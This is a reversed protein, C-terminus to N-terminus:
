KELESEKTYEEILQCIENYAGPILGQVSTEAQIDKELGEYMNEADKIMLNVLTVINNPEQKLFANVKNDEIKREGFMNGDNIAGYLCGLATIDEESLILNKDYEKRIWESSFTTNDYEKSLDEVIMDERLARLIEERTQTQEIGVEQRPVFASKKQPVINDDMGENLMNSKKTKSLLNRFWDLIKM